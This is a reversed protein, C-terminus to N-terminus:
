GLLRGLGSLRNGLPVEQPSAEDWNWLDMSALLSHEPDFSFFACPSSTVSPSGPTQAGDGAERLHLFGPRQERKGWSGPIKAELTRKERM